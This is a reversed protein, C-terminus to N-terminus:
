RRHIRGGRTVAPANTDRGSRRRGGVRASTLRERGNADPRPPPRCTTTKSDPYGTAARRPPTMRLKRLIQRLLYASESSHHRHAPSGEPHRRHPPRAQVASFRKRKHRERRVALIQVFTRVIAVAEGMWD